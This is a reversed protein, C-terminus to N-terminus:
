QSDSVLLAYAENPMHQKREGTWMTGGDGWTAAWSNVGMIHVSGDTNYRLKVGGYICHGWDNVGWITPIGMLACTVLEDYNNTDLDLCKMKHLAANAQAEATWVRRDNTLMGVFSTEAIGVDQIQKMDAEIYQGMDKNWNTVPGAVSSASLEKYPLGAMERACMAAGTPGFGHCWSYGNQDLIPVIAKCRDWIWSQNETKEAIRDKWESRPTLKLTSRAAFSGLPRSQYDRPIMGKSYGADSYTM